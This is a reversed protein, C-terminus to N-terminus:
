VILEQEITFSTLSEVFTEKIKSMLLHINAEQVKDRYFGLRIQVAGDSLAFTVRCHPGGVRELTKDPRSNLERTRHAFEMAVKVWLPPVSIVAGEGGSATVEGLCNFGIGGSWDEVAEIQKRTHPNLYRLGGYSEKTPGYSRHQRVVDHIFAERTVDTGFRFLAPYNISFWGLGRSTDIGQIKKDRGNGVLSLLLDDQSFGTKFAWLFNVLCFEEFSIAHATLFASIGGALSRDIYDVMHDPDRIIAGEQTSSTKVLLRDKPKFHSCWFDCLDQVDGRNSIAFQYEAWQCLIM